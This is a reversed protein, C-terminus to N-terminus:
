PGIFVVPANKKNENKSFWLRSVVAVETQHRRSRLAMSRFLSFSTIATRHM